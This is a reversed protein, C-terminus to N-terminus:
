KDNLVKKIQEAVSETIGVLQLEEISATAMNKLSGFKDFL